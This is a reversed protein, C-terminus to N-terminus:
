STFDYKEKNQYSMTVTKRVQRFLWNLLLITSLINLIQLKKQNFILSDKDDTVM